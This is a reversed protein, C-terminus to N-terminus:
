FNRGIEIYRKKELSFKLILMDYLGLTASGNLVCGFDTARNDTLKITNTIDGGILYIVTGNECSQTAGFPLVNLTVPLGDGILHHEQTTVLSDILITDTDVKAVESYVFSSNRNITRQANGISSGSVSDTNALTMKGITTDDTTKDFFTANAVASSLMSKFNIPM